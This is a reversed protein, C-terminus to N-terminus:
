GQQQQQGQLLQQQEHAIQFIENLRQRDEDTLSQQLIANVLNPDRQGISNVAQVFYQAMPLNEVPSTYIFDDDEEDDVPEGSMFAIKKAKDEKTVSELVARYEEDEANLCDEDENYGGDPVELLKSRRQEAAFPDADDDDDDDAQRLSVDKRRGGDFDFDDDDYDEEEDDDEEEEREREKKAEEEIIIIERIVQQFMSPLNMQIIPPLSQTPITFISLFSLVILRETFDRDMDKMLGFVFHFYFIISLCSAQSPDNLYYEVPKKTEKSLVEAFVPSSIEQIISLTYAADYYFSGM